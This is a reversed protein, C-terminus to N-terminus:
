HPRTRPRTAQYKRDQPRRQELHAPEDTVFISTMDSRPRMPELVREFQEGIGLGHAFEEPRTM